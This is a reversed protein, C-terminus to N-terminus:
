ISVAIELSPSKLKDLTKIVNENLSKPGLTVLIKISKKSM